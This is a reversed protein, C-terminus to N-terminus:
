RGQLQATSLAAFYRRSTEWHERLRDELVDLRLQVERFGEAQDRDREVNSDAVAHVLKRLAQWEAATLVDGSALARPVVPAVRVEAPVPMEPPSGWRVVVQQGDIRVEFNLLSFALLGAATALLAMGARRWRRALREQDRLAQQYLRPLDVQVRPVVAQDLMGRVKALAAREARCAPCADLHAHVAIAREEALDGYALEPLFPQVDHCTM